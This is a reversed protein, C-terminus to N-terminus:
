RSALAAVYLFYECAEDTKGAKKAEQAREVLKQATPLFAEAYKDWDYPEKMQAQLDFFRIMELCSLPSALLSCTPYKTLEHLGCAPQINWVM